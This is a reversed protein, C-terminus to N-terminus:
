KPCTPIIGNEISIGMINAIGWGENQFGISEIYKEQNVESLTFEVEYLRITELNMELGYGYRTIRGIGKLAYNSANWWDNVQIGTFQQSTSDDFNVTISLQASGGGSTALVYLSKAVAPTAFTLTGSQSYTLRLTNNQNAPALQYPLDPTQESIFYGDSPLYRTPSVGNYSYTGNIFVYGSDGGDIGITTTTTPIQSGEAIVDHNFGTLTIPSFQS